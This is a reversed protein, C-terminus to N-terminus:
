LEFGCQGLKWRCVGLLSGAAALELSSPWLESTSGSVSGIRLEVLCGERLPDPPPAEDGLPPTPPYVGGM